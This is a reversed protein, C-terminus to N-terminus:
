YILIDGFRCRLMKLRYEGALDILSFKGHLVKRTTRCCLSLTELLATLCHLQFGSECTLHLMGLFQFWLNQQANKM